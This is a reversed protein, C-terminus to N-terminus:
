IKFINRLLTTTNFWINVSFDVYKTDEAYGSYAYDNGDCHYAGNLDWTPHSTMGNNTFNNLGGYIASDLLNNDLALWLENNDTIAANVGIALIMLM